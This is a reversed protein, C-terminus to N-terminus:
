LYSKNVEVIEVRRMEKRFWMWKGMDPLYLPSDRLGNTVLIKLM